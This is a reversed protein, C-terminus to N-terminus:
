QKCECGKCDYNSSSRSGNSNDDYNQGKKKMFVEM